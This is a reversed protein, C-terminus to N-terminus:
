KLSFGRFFKSAKKMARNTCLKQSNRGTIVTFVAGEGELLTTLIKFFEM